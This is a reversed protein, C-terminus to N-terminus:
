TLPRFADHVVCIGFASIACAVVMMVWFRMARYNEIVAQRLFMVCCVALLVLDTWVATVMYYHMPGHKM